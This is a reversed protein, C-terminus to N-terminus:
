SLTAGRGVAAHFALAEALWADLGQGELAAAEVTIWGAGMPRDAGMVAPHAGPRALLDAAGAPDIRLLLEGGRRAAVVMRDDVMFSVGGFMRVERPERDRLAKRVRDVLDPQSTM